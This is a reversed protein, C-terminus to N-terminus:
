SISTLGPPMTGSVIKRATAVRRNGLVKSARLEPQVEQDELTEAYEQPIMADFATEVDTEFAAFPKAYEAHKQLGLRLGETLDM